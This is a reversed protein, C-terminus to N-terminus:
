GTTIRLWLLEIIRYARRCMEIQDRSPADKYLERLREQEEFSSHHTEFYVAFDYAIPGPRSYEWDILLAPGGDIPQLINGPNLDIHCLGYPLATWDFRDLQELHPAFEDKAGEAMTLYHRVTQPPTWPAANCLEPPIPISHLTNLTSALSAATVGSSSEIYEVVLYDDRWLKLQPTIGRESIAALIQKELGRDVGLHQTDANLRLVISEHEM